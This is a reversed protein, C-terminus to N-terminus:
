SELKEALACNRLSNESDTATSVHHLISAIRCAARVFYLRAVKQFAFLKINSLFLSWVTKDILNGYIQM